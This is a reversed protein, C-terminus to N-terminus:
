FSRLALIAPATVIILIALFMLMLPLLMKTSAEEGLRKATNKRMEWCESAQLRLVSVLEANGKRLNQLIVSIARTIEPVRCRKAFDEYARQESMGAAMDSLTMRLEEYLPRDGKNDHSVKEWAKSVTMGANILLTLKNLFDPFDIQIMLKRKKIKDKLEIDPLYFAALVLMMSFAAYIIDVKGMSGALIALLLALITYILKNAWHIKLYYKAYRRGSIQSIKTLRERDFKSDFKYGSLDLIYFAAPMLGKFPYKKPNVCELFKNYKRGALIFIVVAATLTIFFAIIM